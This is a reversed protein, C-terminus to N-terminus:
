RSQRDEETEHTMENISGMDAAVEDGELKQGDEASSFDFVEPDQGDEELQKQLREVLLAKVGSTPLGRKELEVKLDSVRM